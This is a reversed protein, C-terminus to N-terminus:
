LYSKLTVSFTLFYNWELIIKKEKESIHKSWQRPRSKKGRKRRNVQIGNEPPDRQGREPMEWVAPQKGLESNEGFLRAASTSTGTWKWRQGDAFGWVRGRMSWGLVQNQNAWIQDHKCAFDELNNVWTWGKSKQKSGEHPITRVWREWLFLSISAIRQCELLSRSESWFLSPPGRHLSVRRSVRRVSFHSSSWGLHHNLYFSIAPKKPANYSFPFIPPPSDPVLLPTLTSLRSPFKRCHFRKM